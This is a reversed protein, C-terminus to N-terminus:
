LKKSLKKKFLNFYEGVFFGRSEGLNKAFLGNNRYLLLSDQLERKSLLALSMVNISQACDVEAVHCLKSTHHYLDDSRKYM